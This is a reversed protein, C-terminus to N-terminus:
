RTINKLFRLFPLRHEIPLTVLIGTKLPTDNELVRRAIVLLRKPQVTKFTNIFDARIVSLWERNALDASNLVM